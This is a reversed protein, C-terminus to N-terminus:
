RKLHEPRPRAVEQSTRSGCTLADIFAIAGLTRLILVGMSPEPGSALVAAGLLACAVWAGASRRLLRPTGDEAATARVVLGLAVLFLGVFTLRSATHLAPPVSLGAVLVAVIVAVSCRREYQM